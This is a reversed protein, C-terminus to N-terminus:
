FAIDLGARATGIPFIALFYDKGGVALYTGAGLRLRMRESVRYGGAMSLALAPFRDTFSPLDVRERRRLVAGAGASFQWDLRREPSLDRVIGASILALPALGRQQACMENACGEPPHQRPVGGQLEVYYGRGPQSGPLGLRLGALAGPNMNFDSGYLGLGASLELTYNGQQAAAPGVHVLTRLGLLVLLLIFLRVM